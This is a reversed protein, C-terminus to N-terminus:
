PCAVWEDTGDPFQQRKWVPLRHKVEDVVLSAAAFAEQRHAASVAVVIATDGVDLEGVRHTVALAECDTREALEAALEKLVTPASPHAVYEIATVSRGGDHDRVVGRFTVVAGASGRDVAAEHAAVDLPAPSVEALVVQRAPPHLRSTDHGHPTAPHDTALAPHPSDPTPRAEPTM